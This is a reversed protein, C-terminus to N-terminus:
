SSFWLPLGPAAIKSQTPLSPRFLHCQLSGQHCSPFAFNWSGLAPTLKTLYWPGALFSSDNCSPLYPPYLLHVQFPHYPIHSDWLTKHVQHSKRFHSLLVQEGPQHIHFLRVYTFMACSAEQIDDIFSPERRGTNVGM